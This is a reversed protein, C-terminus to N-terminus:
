DNKSEYDLIGKIIDDHEKKSNVLILGKEEPYQKM